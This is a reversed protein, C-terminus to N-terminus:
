EGLKEKQQNRKDTRGKVNDSKTPCCSSKPGVPISFVKISLSRIGEITRQPGGPQPLVVIARMMELIVRDRNISSEAM